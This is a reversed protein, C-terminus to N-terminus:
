SKKEGLRELIDKINPIGWGSEVESELNLFKFDVVLRQKGGPKPVMFGHSYYGARSPRIVGLLLLLGIQRRM